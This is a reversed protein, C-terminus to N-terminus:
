RPARASKHALVAVGEPVPPLGAAQCMMQAWAEVHASLDGLPTWSARIEIQADTAEEALGGFSQSSVCTVTGSAATYDADHASLAEHLWSWGVELLLSDNVMDPEIDARVYSVCRFTGAWADNGAPDYLVVLRGSGVEEEALVVDASMAAAHPAIRQPAPIEEVTIEPRLRAAAIQRLAVRFEEPIPQEAM